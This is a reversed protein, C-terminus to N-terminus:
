STSTTQRGHSLFDRITKFSVISGDRQVRSREVHVVASFPANLIPTVFIDQASAGPPAFAIALLVLGSVAPLSSLLRMQAKRAVNEASLM